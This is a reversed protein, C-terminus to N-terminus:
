ARKKHGRKKHTKSKKHGRKKSTKFKKHKKGSCTKKTRRKGGNKSPNNPRTTMTERRPRGKIRPSGTISGTSGTISGPSGTPSDSINSNKAEWTMTRLATKIDIADRDDKVSKPPPPPGLNM